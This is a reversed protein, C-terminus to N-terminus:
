RGAPRLDSSNSDGDRECIACYEAHSCGCISVQNPQERNPDARIVDVSVHSQATLTYSRGVYKDLLARVEPTQFDARTGFMIPQGVRRGSVLFDVLRKRVSGSTSHLLSDTVLPVRSGTQEALALVFAVSLARRSAGNILQLSKDADGFRAFLEYEPASSNRGMARLGVEAVLGAETEGTIEKFLHDMCSSVERVQDREIHEYASKLVAHVAEAAQVVSQRDRVQASRGAAQRIKEQVSKLESKRRELQEELRQVGDRRTDRTNLKESVDKKMESAEAQRGSQSESDRELGEIRSTLAAIKPDLDALERRTNGVVDTRLAASGERKHKSALSLVGDLFRAGSETKRAAELTEGLVRAENGGATIETGCLCKGRGLLRPIVELEHPPIHGKEKMPELRGIIEKLSKNILAAALPIGPTAEALQHIMTRRQTNLVDRKDRLEKLESARQTTREFSAIMASFRADADRHAADAQEYACRAHPLNTEVERIAAEVRELEQQQNAAQAGHNLTAIEKLYSNRQNEVRQAAQLLADLALLARISKGIMKRMLQDSHNGETGGVYDVAKDADIFYFDRMEPRIISHLTEIAADSLLKFQGDPEQRSLTLKEEGSTENGTGGSTLRRVINFNGSRGGAEQRFSLKVKTTTPSDKPAWVPRLVSSSGGPLQVGDTGFLVWLFARMLTTKGSANEGRILTLPREPDTSFRFTAKPYIAFNTLEIELFQIM